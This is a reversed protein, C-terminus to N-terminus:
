SVIAAVAAKCAAQKGDRLVQGLFAWVVTATSYIYGIAFLNEHKTFIREIREASLVQAFPLGAQSLFSGVIRRFNGSERGESYPVGPM